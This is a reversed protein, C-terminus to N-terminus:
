YLEIIVLKSKKEEKNKHEREGHEKRDNTERKTEDIHVYVCCVRAAWLM